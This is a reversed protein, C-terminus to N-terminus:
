LEQEYRALDQEVESLYEIVAEVTDGDKIGAPQPETDDYLRFLRFADELEAPLQLIGDIFKAIYPESSNPGFPVVVVNYRRNRLENQENPNYSLQFDVSMLVTDGVSVSDSYEKNIYFSYEVPRGRKAANEIFADSLDGNFYSGEPENRHREDVIGGLYIDSGGTMVFTYLSGENSLAKNLLGVQNYYAYLNRTEIGIVKVPYGSASIEGTNAGIGSARALKRVSTVEGVVLAKGINKRYHDAMEEEPSVAPIAAVVAPEQTEATGSAEQDNTMVPPEAIATKEPPDTLLVLGAVVCVMLAFAIVWFTPERYNLVNKVRKKVGTEGFALPCANVAKRRVSCDLLAQSYAAMSDRDMGRIVKEDCASEIDRCFLMYAAWCLPNFWHVSLLLYGLGKWLHDGRRIHAKEHQLVCALTIGSLSSPVYVMPKIFGLIFPTKIADCTMIGDDTRIAASVSRKIRFYSFAAYILMVVAGSVWILSIVFIAAQLPNTNTEAASAFTDMIVPNVTRDIIGIGSEIAPSQTVAIDYPVTQSSPVLSVSSKLSLPCILRVAVLVWLLCMAWKPSKKLVLRLAIAALILWSATISMNLVKLFAASM